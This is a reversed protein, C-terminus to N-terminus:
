CNFKNKEYVKEVGTIGEIVDGAMIGSTITSYLKKHEPTTLGGIILLNSLWDRANAAMPKKWDFGKTGRIAIYNEKLQTRRTPHYKKM